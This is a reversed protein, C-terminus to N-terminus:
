SGGKKELFLKTIESINGDTLISFDRFEGTMRDVSYFPDYEEENPRTSFVQFLYVHKYAIWTQIQGDPINKKVIKEAEQSTLM